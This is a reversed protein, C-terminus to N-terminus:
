EKLSINKCLIFYTCLGLTIDVYSCKTAFTRLKLFRFETRFTVRRYSSYIPLRNLEVFSSFHYETKDIIAINLFHFEYKPANAPFCINVTAM